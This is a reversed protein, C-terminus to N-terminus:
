IHILSLVTPATTDLTFTISETGSYANGALDAGAVTVRYTGNSPAGGSDVDWAYNYQTTTAYVRSIEDATLKRNWVYLDDVFGKFM